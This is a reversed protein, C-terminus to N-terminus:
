ENEPAEPHNQLPASQSHNAAQDLLTHQWDPKGQTDIKFFGATDYGRTECEQRGEITFSGRGICFEEAGHWSGGVNYHVGHLFYTQASLPGDVLTKCRSAEVTWWGASTWTEGTKMALALGAPQQTQNCITLDAQAEGGTSALGSALIIALTIAPIPAFSPSPRALM